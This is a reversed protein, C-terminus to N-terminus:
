APHAVSEPRAEGRGTADIRDRHGGGALGDLHLGADRWANFGGLLACARYGRGRLFLAV